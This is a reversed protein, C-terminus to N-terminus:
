ESISLAEDNIEKILFRGNKSFKGTIKEGCFNVANNKKALEIIMQLECQKDSKAVDERKKIAAYQSLDYDIKKDINFGSNLRISEIINQQSDYEIFPMPENQAKVDSFFRELCVTILKSLHENNKFYYHMVKMNSDLYEFKKKRSMRCIKGRLFPTDENLVMIQLIYFDAKTQLIQYQAQIIYKYPIGNKVREPMMTKQECVFREGEKPTGFGYDFGHEKDIREAIGSIDLSAILKDNAFVLGSKLKKERNKQLVYTGYPEAAHGYEAFEPSLSEKKYLGDNLLKHYLAWVTTYPKEHLFKEADIGCNLLEEASAYYKIIDFVESSGIRTSRLKEWALTGQKLKIQKM